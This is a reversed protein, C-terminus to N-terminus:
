EGGGGACAACYGRRLAQTLIMTCDICQGYYEGKRRKGGGVPCEGSERCSAMSPLVHALCNCFVRWMRTCM